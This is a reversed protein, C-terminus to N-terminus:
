YLDRGPRSICTCAPYLSVSGPVPYVVPYICLCLDLDNCCSPYGWFVCAQPLPPSGIGINIDNYIYYIKFSFFLPGGRGPAWARPRPRACRCQPSSAVSWAGRRTEPDRDFIPRPRPCKDSVSVSLGIIGIRYLVLIVKRESVCHSLHLALGTALFFFFFVAPARGGRYIMFRHPSCSVAGFFAICLVFFFGVV